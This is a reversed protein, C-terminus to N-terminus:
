SMTNKGDFDTRYAVITKHVAGRSIKKMNGHKDTTQVLDMIKRISHGELHAAIIRDKTKKPLGKRGWKNGKYSVTKGGRSRIAAKVRESKKASEEEALWGMIQLMMDSMIDNWPSPASNLEELWKQRYSHISVDYHKCLNFFEVLKLRNRYLRDLDWVYLNKVQKQKVLSILKTFDPRDHDKWGSVKDELILPKDESNAITFIQALQNEPNQEETSTRIYIVNIMKNLM